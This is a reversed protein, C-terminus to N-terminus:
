MFDRTTQLAITERMMLSGEIDTIGDEYFNVPFREIESLPKKSDDEAHKLAIELKKHPNKTSATIDKMENIPKKPDIIEIPKKDFYDEHKPMNGDYSDFIKNLVDIDTVKAVTRPIFKNFFVVAKKAV